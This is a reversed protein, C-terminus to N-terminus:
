EGFLRGRVEAVYADFQDLPVSALSVTVQGAKNRRVSVRTTKFAQAVEPVEANIRQVRERLDEPLARSHRAQNLHAVAERIQRVSADLFPVGTWAGTEDRIKVRVALLEGPQEDKGTADLYSLGAALKETGFRAAMEENFVAAVRMAKYATSRGTVRTAALWDDFGAHDDDRWLEDRQVERLANGMHWLNRALDANRTRVETELDRLRQRRAIAPMNAEPHTTPPDGPHPHRTSSHFRQRSPRRTDLFDRIEM